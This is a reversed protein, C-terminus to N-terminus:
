RNDKYNHDFGSRRQSTHFCSCREPIKVPGFRVTFIEANEIGSDEINEKRFNWYKKFVSKGNEIILNHAPRLECINKFFTEGNNTRYGYALYDFVKGHNADRINKIKLIAKIESSFIFTDKDSYYYFPKVGFRDRSAFFMKKRFDYIAFAWMGNFYNVCDTGYEEYSHIIVETDSKTKFQYGENKLDDTLESYNYIEGNFVIVVSKDANFMPQNAEKSLDIISLRRFGLSVPYDIFKGEDDPGRHAIEDNMKQINDEFFEPPKDSNYSNFYLIGNIGCMLKESNFENLTDELLKYSNFGNRDWTFNNKVIEKGKESMHRMKDKDNSLNLIAESLQAPSNPKVTIVPYGLRKLEEGGGIGECTIVPLGKALAEIFVIGFAEPFSPLVFIHSENLLSEIEKQTKMGTFCIENNLNLERSLKIYNEKLVGNGIIMLEVDISSKLDSVAKILDDINKRPENLHSVCILKLKKFNFDKLEPNVTFNQGYYIIKVEPLRLKENLLDDKNLTSHVVIKDAKEFVKIFHEHREPFLKKLTPM